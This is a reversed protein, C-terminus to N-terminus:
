QHLHVNGAKAPGHNELVWDRIADPDKCQHGIGWGDVDNARLGNSDVRAGEITLDAACRDM